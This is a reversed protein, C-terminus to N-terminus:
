KINNKLKYEDLDFYRYGQFGKYEIKDDLYHFPGSREIFNGQWKKHTTSCVFDKHSFGVIEMWGKIYNDHVVYCKDGKHVGKPFKHVRFNLIHKYNQAKLLEKEYDEWKIDKPLTIIISREKQELAEIIRMLTLM